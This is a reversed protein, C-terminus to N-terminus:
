RAMERPQTTIAATKWKVRVLQALQALRVLHEPQVRRVLRETQAMQGQWEKRARPDRRVM